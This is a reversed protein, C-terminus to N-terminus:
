NTPCNLGTYPLYRTTSWVIGYIHFTIGLTVNLLDQQNEFPSNATVQVGCANYLDQFTTDNANDSAYYISMPVTISSSKRGPLTLKSISGNGFLENTEEDKITFDISKFRTPVWNNTNDATINLLWNASMSKTTTNTVVQINGINDVDQLSLKPIRPWVFYWIIIIIAVWIFTIFLISRIRLGCYTKIQKKRHATTTDPLLDLIKEQNPIHSQKNFDIIHSPPETLLSCMTTAPRQQSTEIYIPETKQNPDREHHSYPLYSNARSDSLKKKHKYNVKAYPDEYNDNASNTLTLSTKNTSSDSATRSHFADFESNNDIVVFCVNTVTAFIHLAITGIPRPSKRLVRYPDSEEYVTSLSPQKNHQFSSM